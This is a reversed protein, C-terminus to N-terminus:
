KESFSLILCNRIKLLFQPFFAFHLNHWRGVNMNRSNLFPNKSYLVNMFVKEQCM